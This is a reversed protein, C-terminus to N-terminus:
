SRSHVRNPRPRANAACRGPRRDAPHCSRLKMASRRRVTAKANSTRTPSPPGSAGAMAPVAPARSGLVFATRLTRIMLRGAVAQISMRSAFGGFRVAIKRVLASASRAVRETRARVSGPLPYRAKPAPVRERAPLLTAPSFRAGLSPYSEWRADVTNRSRVPLFRVCPTPAIFQDFITACFRPADYSDTGPASPRARRSAFIPRRTMALASSRSRTPVTSWRSAASVRMSVLPRVGPWTVFSSTFSGAAGKPRRSSGSATMPANGVSKSVRRWTTMTSADSRARASAMRGTATGSWRRCSWASASAAVSTSTPRRRLRTSRFRSATTMTAGYWLPRARVSVTAATCAGPTAGPRRSVAVVRRAPKTWITSRAGVIRSRRPWGRGSTISPRAARNM